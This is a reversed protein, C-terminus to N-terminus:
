VSRKQRIKCMARKGFSGRFCNGISPLLEHNAEGVGDKWLNAQSLEGWLGREDFYSNLQPNSVFELVAAEVMEVSINRKDRRRKCALSCLKRALFPHSGSMELIYGLASKDYEINIKQGLNRIMDSCDEEDLPSLFKEIIVQYMPNKQNGWFYNYRAVGPHVGAVLLCIRQTELHLGRLSDMLDIYLKLIKEDGETPVIHEIEDLFIGLMPSSTTTNLYDLLSKTAGDFVSPTITGESFQPVVWNFNRPYKVRGNLGWNELIRRYIRDLTDNTNLYVYAVPFEIRRQLQQLVSSKGMKQIGFLGLRQGRRLDDSLEETLRQRGFFSVVDSVPDVVSYPDFERGLNKGIQKQLVLEEKHAAISELIVSEDITLVVFHRLGQEWRLINIEASGSFDPQQNIIVLAHDVGHNKANLFIAQVTSQDLTNDLLVRIYLGRPFYKKLTSIKARTLFGSGNSFTELDFGAAKLFQQVLEVRARSTQIEIAEERLNLHEAINSGVNIAQVTASLAEHDQGLLYLIAAKKENARSNNPEFITATDFASLAEEYRKMHLLSEGIGLHAVVNKPDLTAAHAYTELAEEYKQQELLLEGLYLETKIDNPSLQLVKKYAALADVSRGLLRLSNALNWYIASNQPSLQAAIKYATIAEEYRELTSLTVGLELYAIANNSDLKSAYQYSSLAETFRAMGYLARSRGIYATINTPELRIVHEYAALAEHFQRLAHFIDGKRIYVTALNPERLIAQDFAALAEEYQEAEILKNGEALWDTQVALSEQLRIAVQRIEKAVESFVEDRNKWEIIPKGSRPLVQLTHFPANRWDTHRLIIPIVRAERTEARETARKAQEYLNDSAMFNPSVLLLIIDASNLHSQIAYELEEGAIIDRNSWTQISGSRKLITLHQDLEKRLAEDEYAYSYFIKISRTTEAM